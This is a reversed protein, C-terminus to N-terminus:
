ARPSNQSNEWGDVPDNLRPLCLRFTAGHGPTSLVEVRGGHAAVLSRVISLGLGAGSGGARARSSEARYFREFVRDIQEATLGPGTDAIELVADGDVCGVGIRVPSSRPTHAHVNGVLNVVVQRLRAEDALVPAAASPATPEEDGTAPATLRVPRGPDLARLDNRAEAALTRLDAPALDLLPGAAAEDLRALLLLDEVLAALRGAETDIRRMTREVDGPTASGGMLHLEASGKIGFLPTRLEHSVDGVFRRMRAESEARAAFAREIQALMANLVGSLRAIETNPPGDGPIRHTLDGDAIAEATREISHLPRLGARIALWGAATLVVMLVLATILCILRLEAITADTEALSGAVAVVGGGPRPVVVMRWPSGDAGTAAFGVALRARLLSGDYAPPAPASGTTATRGTRDVTGEANVFAVSVDNILDLRGLLPQAAPGEMPNPRTAGIRSVVQALPVLQSDVRSVLRDRLASTVVTDSIAIGIVLLAMTIVLLRARLSHPWPRPLKV